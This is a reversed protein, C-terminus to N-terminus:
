NSRRNSRCGRTRSGRGRGGRTGVGRGRGRRPAGEIDSAGVSGPHPIAPICRDQGASRLVDRYREDCWICGSYKPPTGLPVASRRWTITINHSRCRGCMSDGEAAAVSQIATKPFWYVFECDRGSTCAIYKSGTKRAERISCQSRCLPCEAINTQNSPTGGALSCNPHVCMFCRFETTKNEPNITADTPPENLCYPCITHQSKTTSNTVQLIQFKCIACRVEHASVQGFRPLKHSKNCRECYLSRGRGEGDNAHGGRRGRGRGRNRSRRTPPAGGSVPEGKLHMQNRCVGCETINPILTEWTASSSISFRSQFEITLTQANGRLQSFKVSYDSLANQLVTAAQAQGNSIKKLDKEQTARMHPRALHLQCREHAVVLAKGIDTPSFRGGATALRVVYNREQVKKIHEAITADTGIGYHDMLSILDAESLLPPPQTQSQRMIFSEYPLTAGQHLLASPMEREAWKELPHMVELYGKHEVIIGKATFFEAEGVRVQVSTEAGHADVSCCALFRKTIYKYVKMHDTSDFSSPEAETPHIPPHAGDDSGGARPWVFTVIDQESAPTLLRSAFDGCEPNGTQKQILGKLNYTMNFQNTETRPYSILGKNYLSEAVEMLRHSTIRLLRSAAKQLEVTSLPIPRWRSKRRKDVRVVHVISGDAEAQEVAVEYFTHATYEDFLQRRAWEFPVDCSRLSLVFVWFPRRIFNEIALWRDVVLGLTPFQCPGYSVIARTSGHPAAQSLDFRDLAKTLFRTYASGARLDIEQRTEVMAAMRENLVDLHNVARLLDGRTMASFRARKVVLSRKADICVDRVDVAIKEGESDCDLWLVLWDANRSESHLTRVLPAKDEAVNWEVKTATRDLLKAPDCSGWKRVSEEFETGKLHGTVSTFVMHAPAGNLVMDFDYIRNYRSFGNRQSVQSGQRLVAVIEKAASPKEAM